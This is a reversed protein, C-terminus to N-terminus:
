ELRFMVPILELYKGRLFSALRDDQPAQFAGDCINGKVETLALRRNLRRRSLTRSSKM